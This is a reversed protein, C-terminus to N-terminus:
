YIDGDIEDIEKIFEDILTQLKNTVYYLQGQMGTLANIFTQLNDHFAGYTYADDHAIQLQNIISTYRGELANNLNLIADSYNEFEEDCIILDQM